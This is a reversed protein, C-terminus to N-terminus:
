LHQWCGCRYEKGVRREQARAASSIQQRQNPETIGSFDASSKILSDALPLWRERAPGENWAAIDERLIQFAFPELAPVELAAILIKKDILGRIVDLGRNVPAAPSRDGNASQILAHISTTGNCQRVLEIESPTLAVVDGSDVFILRNDNLIGNPNLRPRRELFTQPDSNIAATLAYATWRELFVERRAIGPRPEFNLSGSQIASGWASPGFEGFTDNKAAIRQLYLLLHRERERNRSNRPPLEGGSHDILHHVDGSGFVLYRPLIRQSTQLLARRAGTLEEELQHELQLRAQRAATAVRSYEQLQQPIKQEPIKDRRIAIRWAAFEESSLGSDRRTVFELATNKVQHLESERALLHRAAALVNPTALEELVDFPVGALRILFPSAIRYDSSVSAALRFQRPM